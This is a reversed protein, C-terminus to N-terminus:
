DLIYVHRTFRSLSYFVAGATGALLAMLMFNFDELGAEVVEVEPIEEEDTTEGCVEGGGYVSECNDGDAFVQAPIALFGFAVLVGAILYKCMATATKM